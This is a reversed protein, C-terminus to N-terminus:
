LTLQMILLYFLITKWNTVLARQILTKKYEAIKDTLTTKKTSMTTEWDRTVNSIISMELAASNCHIVLAQDSLTNYKYTHMYQMKAVSTRNKLVQKGSVYTVYIIHNELQHCTGTSDPNKLIRCNKINVDNKEDVYTTEWDRTVNSIISMELAASNCQINLAQDYTNYKYTHVYQMKAVSTRNKLVQKGSMYTAEATLTIQRVNETCCHIVLM